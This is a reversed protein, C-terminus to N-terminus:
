ITAWIVFIMFFLNATKNLNNRKIPIKERTKADASEGKSLFSNMFMPGTSFM